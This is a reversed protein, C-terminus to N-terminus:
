VCMHPHRCFPLVSPSLRGPMLIPGLRLYVPAAPPDSALGQAAEPSAQQGNAQSDVDSKRKHSLAPTHMAISAAVAGLFTLSALSDTKYFGLTSTVLALHSGTPVSSECRCIQTYLSISCNCTSAFCGQRRRGGTTGIVQITGQDSVAM